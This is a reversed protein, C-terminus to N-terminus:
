REGGFDMHRTDQRPGRNGLPLANVSDSWSGELSELSMQATRGRLGQHLRQVEDANAESAMEGRKKPSIKLWNESHPLKLELVLSMNIDDYKIHMKAKKSHTKRVNYAYNNLDKFISLLHNPVDIRIGAKPKGDEKVLGGLNVVRSAVFDRDDTEKFRVCVELYSQSNPM